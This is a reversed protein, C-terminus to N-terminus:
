TSVFVVSAPSKEFVATATEGFNLTEGARRTVGMVILDCSGKRAATMIASDPLGKSSSTRIEYDYRDAIDVIEKLITQEQRRM